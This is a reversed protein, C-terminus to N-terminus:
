NSAGILRQLQAQLNNFTALNGSYDIDGSAAQMQQGMMTLTSTAILDVLKMNQDANFAEQKLMLEKHALQTRYMQDSLNAGFQRSQETLQAKSQELQTKFQSQQERLNAMFQTRNERMSAVGQQLQTIAGEQQIGQQQIQMSTLGFDRAQLNRAAQSGTATGGARASLGSQARLQDATDGSVRGALWDANKERLGAVMKSMEDLSEDAKATDPTAPTYTVGSLDLPEYPKIPDVSMDLNTTVRATTAAAPSAAAASAGSSSAGLAQWSGIESSTPARGFQDKFQSLATNQDRSFSSFDIAM